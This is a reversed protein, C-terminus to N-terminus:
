DCLSSCATAKPFDSYQPQNVYNVNVFYMSYNFNEHLFTVALLSHVKEESGLKLWFQRNLQLINNNLNINLNLKMGTKEVFIGLSSSLIDSLRDSSFGKIQLEKSEQNHIVHICM